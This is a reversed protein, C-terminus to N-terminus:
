HEERERQQRLRVERQAGGRHLRRTARWHGGGRCHRGRLSSKGRLPSKHIRRLGVCVGVLPM